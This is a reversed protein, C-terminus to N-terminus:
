GIEGESPEVELTLGEVRAVRVRAGAEIRGSTRATWSEGGARVVGDPDLTREVVGIEGVLDQASAVPTVSRRTKILARLVLLGFAIVAIAVAVLVGTSVRVDSSGDFLTVGGFIVGVLGLGGVVGGPVFVEMVLLAVGGVILAVGLENVPLDALIFGSGVVLIAGLIGAVFGGPQIIEITIALLGIVLLLYAIDPDLGPSFIVALTQM